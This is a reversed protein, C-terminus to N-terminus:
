AVLHIQTDCDAEKASREPCRETRLRCRLYDPTRRPAVYGTDAGDAIEDRIALAFPDIDVIFTDCHTVDEVGPRKHAALNVVTMEADLAFLPGELM